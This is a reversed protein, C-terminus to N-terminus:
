HRSLSACTWYMWHTWKRFSRREHTWERFSGTLQASQTSEATLAQKRTGIYPCVVCMSKLLCDRSKFLSYRHRPRVEQASSRCGKEAAGHGDSNPLPARQQESANSKAQQKCANAASKAANCEYYAAKLAEETFEAHSTYMDVTQM